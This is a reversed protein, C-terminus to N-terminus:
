GGTGVYKKLNEVDVFLTGVRLTVFLPTEQAGRYVLSLREVRILKEEEELFRLVAALGEAGMNIRFETQAMPIGNWSSPGLVSYSQVKVGSKEFVDQLMQQMKSGAEELSSAEVLMREIRNVDQLAVGGSALEGQLKSLNKRLASEKTRLAELRAELESREQLSPVYGVWLWAAFVVAALVAIFGWRRKQSRGWLKM